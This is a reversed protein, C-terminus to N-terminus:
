PIPQDYEVVVVGKGQTSAGKTITLYFDLSATLARFINAEYEGLEQPINETDKIYNDVSIGDGLQLIAAPDDFVETIIIQATVVRFGNALTFMKKPSADDFNFTQTILEEGPGTPSPPYSLRYLRPHPM